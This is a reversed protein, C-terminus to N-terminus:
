RGQEETDDATIAETPADAHRGHGVYLVHRAEIVSLQATTDPDHTIGDRTTHVVSFTIAVTPPTVDVERAAGIDATYGLEEFATEPEVDPVPTEDVQEAVPTETETKTKPPM